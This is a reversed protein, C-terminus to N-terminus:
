STREELFPLTAGLFAEARELYPYHGAEPVLRFEAGPIAQAFARGYDASVIGDSNGWLVLAPVDIRRLWKRLRPNHMFPKWAFLAMTERNHLLTVLEEETLDPGPFKMLRAGAAPDYCAAKLFAESDMLFNDAIDRVTPGSVKIGVADVLVLRSIHQTSRIAVEAAIWGGLGLGILRVARAPAAAMRRLLNLYVYALDDVSDFGDPLPSRGFGPHSPVIVSYQGALTDLYPWSTNLYEQDHLVLLPEGHGGALTELEIGDVDLRETRWDVAARSTM